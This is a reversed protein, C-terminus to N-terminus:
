LEGRCRSLEDEAATVRAELAVIRRLLLGTHWDHRETCTRVDYGPRAQGSGPESGAGLAQWWDWTLDDGDVHGGVESIGFDGGIGRPRLEDAM